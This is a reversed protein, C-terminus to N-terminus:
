GASAAPISRRQGRGGGSPGGVRRPDACGDAERDAAGAVQRHRHRPCVAGLREQRGRWSQVPRWGGDGHHPRPRLRRYVGSRLLPRAASPRRALACDAGFIRLFDFDNDASLGASRAIRERAGAEPLLNAFFATESDGPRLPLGTALAFAGDRDPWSEAYAFVLWGSDSRTIFGVDDGFHRVVLTDHRADRSM